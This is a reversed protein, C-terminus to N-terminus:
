GSIINSVYVVCHQSLSNKRQGSDNKMRWLKSLGPAGFLSESFPLMPFIATMTSVAPFFVSWEWQYCHMANHSALSSLFDTKRGRLLRFCPFLSVFLLSLNSGESCFENVATGAESAENWDLHFSSFDFTVSRRLWLTVLHARPGARTECDDPGASKFEGTSVPPPPQM